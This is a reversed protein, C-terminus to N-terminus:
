EGVVETTFMAKPTGRPVTHAILMRDFDANWKKLTVKILDQPEGNESPESPAKFRLSLVGVPPVLETGGDGAVKEIPETEIEEVFPAAPASGAVLAGDLGKVSLTVDTLNLLGDNTIEVKFTGQDSVNVVDGPFQLSVIALQVNTEPYEAIATNLDALVTTPTPIPIPIPIATM